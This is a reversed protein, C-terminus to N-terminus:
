LAVHERHLCSIRCTNVVAPTWKNCIFPRSQLMKTPWHSITHTHRRGNKINGKERGSHGLWVHGMTQQYSRLLASGESACMCACMRVCVCVYACARVCFGQRDSCWEESVPVCQGCKYSRWLADSQRRSAKNGKVRARREMLGPGTSSCTAPNCDAQKVRSWMLSQLWCLLVWMALSVWWLRLCQPFCDLGIEWVSKMQEAKYYVVGFMDQKITVWDTNALYDSHHLKRNRSISKLAM